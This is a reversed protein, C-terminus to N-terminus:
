KQINGRYLEDLTIGDDDKWEKWGNAARGLVYSAAKNPSVFCADQRLRYFSKIKSCYKRVFGARESGASSFSYSFTCDLSLLSGAQLIFNGTTNDYYGLANCNRGPEKDRKIYVFPFGQISNNEVPLTNKSNSFGMFAGKPYIEDLTRGKSDKWETYNSYEGKIYCAAVAASVCKADKLVRYRDHLLVCAESLFRKRRRSLSSVAYSREENLAVSSNRCIYFCGTKEEFYGSAMNESSLKIFFLHRSVDFSSKTWINFSNKLGDIIDSIKKKNESFVYGPFTQMERDEIDAAKYKPIYSDLSKGRKDRWERFSSKKGLLLSAALSASPYYIDKQQCLLIGKYEFFEMRISLPYKRYMRMLMNCSYNNREFFAGNLVVFQSDKVSYYGSAYVCLKGSIFKRIYFVHYGFKEIDAIRKKRLYDDYPIIEVGDFPLSKKPNYERTANIIELRLKEYEGDDESFINPRVETGYMKEYIKDIDINVM